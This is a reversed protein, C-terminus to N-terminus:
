TQSQRLMPLSGGALRELQQLRTLIPPSAKPVSGVNKMKTVFTSNEIKSASWQYKIMRYAAVAKLCIEHLSKDTM